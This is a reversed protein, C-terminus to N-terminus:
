GWAFAIMCVQLDYFGGPIRVKVSSDDDGSEMLLVSYGADALRRAVVCGASGAGVVVDSVGGM